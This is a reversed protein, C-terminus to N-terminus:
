AEAGKSRTPHLIADPLQTNNRSPPTATACVEGTGGSRLAAM